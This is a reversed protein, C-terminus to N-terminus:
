TRPQASLDMMTKPEDRGKFGLRPREATEFGGGFLNLQQVDVASGKPKRKEVFQGHYASDYRVM